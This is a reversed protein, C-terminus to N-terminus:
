AVGIGKGMGNQILYQQLWPAMANSGTATAAGYGISGLSSSALQNGAATGQVATSYGAAPSFGVGAPASLTQIRQNQYQLAADAAAKAAFGGPQQSSQAAAARQALAFGPDGAFNGNIANTLATGAGAAGGSATWPSSGGIAQQALQKMQAAQSMGYLGSGVSMLPSIWSKMGTAGQTGGSSSWSNGGSFLNSAWNSLGTGTGPGAGGGFGYPGGSMGGAAGVGGLGAASSGVDTYLAPDTGFQSGGGGPMSGGGYDAPGYASAGPAGTGTIADYANGWGYGNDAASAIGTTGSGVGAGALGSGLMAVQGLTSGLQQQSGNSVLQSTVLGSGPLFYNGAVSAVSEVTDRLSTWFSM